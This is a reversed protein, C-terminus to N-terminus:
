IVQQVQGGEEERVIQLLLEQVAGEFRVQVEQEQPLEPLAVGVVVVALVGGGRIGQLGGGAAVNPAKDADVGREVGQPIQVRQKGFLGSVQIKSAQVSEPYGPHQVRGWPDECECLTLIVGIPLISLPHHVEKPEQGEEREM